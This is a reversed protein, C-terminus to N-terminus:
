ARVATATSKPKTQSGFEPGRPGGYILGLAAGLHLAPGTQEQTRTLARLIVAVGKKKKTKKSLTIKGPEQWPREYIQTSKKCNQVKKKKKAM